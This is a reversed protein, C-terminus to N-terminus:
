EDDERRGSTICKVHELAASFRDLSARLEAIVQADRVAIEKLEETHGNQYQDLKKQMHLFTKYHSYGLFGAVGVPSAVQVMFQALTLDIM